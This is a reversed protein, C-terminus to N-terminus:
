QGVATGFQRLAPIVLSVSHPLAHPPLPSMQYPSSPLPAPPLQIQMSPPYKQLGSAVGVGEGEGTGLGGVGVGEGEGEGEGPEQAFKPM